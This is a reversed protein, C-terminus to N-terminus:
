QYMQVCYGSCTYTPLRLNLLEGVAIRTGNVTYGVGKKYDAQTTIKILVTEPVNGDKQAPSNVQNCVAKNDTVSYEYVYSTKYTVDTIKGLSNKTTADLAIDGNKILDIHEPQVDKIEIYYTIEVADNTWLKEIKAWPSFLYVAVAIVAIIVLLVLFDIFNFKKPNAKKSIKHSANNM